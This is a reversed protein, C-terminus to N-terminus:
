IGWFAPMAVLVEASVLCSALCCFAATSLGTSSGRVAAAAALAGAAAFPWLLKCPELQLLM